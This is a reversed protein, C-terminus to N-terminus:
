QDDLQLLEELVQQLEVPSISLLQLWTLLPYRLLVRRTYYVFNMVAPKCLHTRLSEVCTSLKSMVTSVLGGSPPPAVSYGRSQIVVTNLVPRFNNVGPLGRDSLFKRVGDMATSTAEQVGPCASLLCIAAGGVAVAAVGVKWWPFPPDDPPAHHLPPAVHVPTIVSRVASAVRGIVDGVINM